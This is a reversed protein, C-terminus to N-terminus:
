DCFEDMSKKGNPYAKCVSAAFKAGALHQSVTWDFDVEWSTITRLAKRCSEVSLGGGCINLPLQAQAVLWKMFPHPGFLQDRSCPLSIGAIEGSIHWSAYLGSAVMNEMYGQILNQARQELRPISLDFPAGVTQLLECLADDKVKKNTCTKTRGRELAKALVADEFRYNSPRKRIDPHRQLKWFLSAPIEINQCLRIGRYLNAAMSEVRVALFPALGAEIMQCTMFAAGLVHYNKSAIQTPTKGPYQTTLIKRKLSEDIDANKALAGAIFFDSTLSPCPSDAYGDEGPRFLAEHTFGTNSLKGEVDNNLFNGQKTDDHGCMGILSLAANPNGKSYKLAKEYLWGPNLDTRNVGSKDGLSPRGNRPEDVSTKQTSRTTSRVDQYFRLAKEAFCNNTRFHYQFYNALGSNNMAVDMDSTYAALNLIEYYRILGNKTGSEPLTNILAKAIRDASSINNNNTTPPALVEQGQSSFVFFFGISFLLKAFHKLILRQRFTKMM